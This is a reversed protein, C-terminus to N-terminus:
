LSNFNVEGESAWESRGHLKLFHRAAGPNAFRSLIDSSGRVPEPAPSPGPASTVGLFATVRAMLLPSNLEDYRVLAYSQGSDNLRALTHAYFAMYTDHHAAFAKAEFTVPPVAARREQEIVGWAGAESAVLKSAYNALVNARYLVIKAIARDDILRDIMALGHREFMKFGVYSRGFNMAYVTELFVEPDVARSARLEAEMEPPPGVAPWGPLRVTVRKRHFIEGHSWIEPQRALETMLHSSGTRASAIVVFRM